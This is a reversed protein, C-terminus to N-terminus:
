RLCGAGDDAPFWDRCRVLWMRDGPEYRIRGTQRRLVANEHRLVLLDADKSVQGRSLVTLGGLLRRVLLYVVSIIVWRHDWGPHGDLRSGIISGWLIPV